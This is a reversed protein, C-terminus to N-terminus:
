LGTPVDIFETQISCDAACKEMVALPGWVETAYHGGAIVNICGELAPHYASHASEGTVYLDIGEEIAQIEEMSAGGSIVACTKNIEKGFPFIGLPPVANIREAADHIKLAEELEGKFGIKKGHYLGFPVPNKIGLKKALVINNGVENNQDLPLHVAYLAINNDLLFKIRARFSAEIRLPTGWFLGHHVFLMDAKCDAARKFTEMCADVAFAIKKIASGDNDVQIGNLSSDIAAFGELDLLNRFYKDLDRSTMTM